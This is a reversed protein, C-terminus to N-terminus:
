QPRLIEFLAIAQDAYGLPLQHVTDDYFGLAAAAAYSGYRASLDILPVDYQTAITYRAANTPAVLSSNVPASDPNPAVIVVDRGATKHAAVNASLNASFTATSVATRIDNTGINIIVIDPDFVNMAYTPAWASGTGIIDLSKAGSSGFNYVSMQTDTNWCDIGGIYIDGTTTHAVNWSNSSSARSAASGIFAQSGNANITSLLSAGDSITYSGFGTNQAAYVIINSTALAPTFAFADGNTVSRFSQSVLMRNSRTWGSGTFVARPDYNTIGAMGSNLVTNDGLVSDESVILGHKRMLKAFVAPMTGVKANTEHNTGTGAGQGTTLSDGEFAIKVRNLGAYAGALKARYRGFKSPAFNYVLAGAATRIVQASIPPQASM